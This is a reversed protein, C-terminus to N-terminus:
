QEKREGDMKAGCNGCYLCGCLGMPYGCVSCEKHQLKVKGCMTDRGDKM